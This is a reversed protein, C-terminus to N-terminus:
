ELYGKGMYGEEMYGKGLYGEGMVYWSEILACIIHGLGFSKGSLHSFRDLKLVVGCEHPFRHPITYNWVGQSVPRGCVVNM